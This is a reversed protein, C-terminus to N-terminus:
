LFAIFYIGHAMHKNGDVNKEEDTDSYIFVEAKLQM